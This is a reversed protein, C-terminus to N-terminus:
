QFNVNLKINMGLHVGITYTDLIKIIEGNQGNKTEMNAKLIVYKAKELLPLQNNNAVLDSVKETITIVEGNTNTEGSAVILEFGDTLSFLPDYNDDVFIVDVDIDVPFGNNVILRFSISEIQSVDENFSFDITDQVEFGYAFGEMPLELEANIKFRSTDQIFNLNTGPGNPNSQGEVEFYFYKPSPSIISSINSTNSTNLEITTTKSEGLITPSLINVPSPYGVLPLTVGTNLNISQMNGLALELPFGFSNILELRIKPNTLEFYGNTATNFIKILISDAYNGLSQQGFYGTANKYAPSSVSADLIINENGNIEQGTGNVTTQVNMVVTNVSVGANTFNATVGALDISGTATVPGSTYTGSLTATLPSGNKLMYPFTVVLNINHKLDSTFSLEIAGSKFNVTHFEVGNPVAFLSSQSSQQSISASFSPVTPINLDATSFSVQESITPLSIIDEATVSVIEGKYVLAIEGSVPDIVVLDSSDTQAMIDYVGFNAFAIPAAFQPNWSSPAILNPDSYKSLKRCSQTSAVVVIAFLYHIFSYKM